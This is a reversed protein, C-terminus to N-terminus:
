GRQRGNRSGSAMRECRASSSHSTHDAEAFLHGYRRDRFWQALCLKRLVMRATGRRRLGHGGGVDVLMGIGSFDYADLVAQAEISWFATMGQQFVAADGPNATFYEFFTM